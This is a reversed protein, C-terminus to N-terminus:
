FEIHPETVHDIKYVATIRCHKFSPYVDTEPCKTQVKKDREEVKM